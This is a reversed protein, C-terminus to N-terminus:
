TSTDIPDALNTLPVIVDARYYGAGGLDSQDRVRLDTGVLDFEAFGRRNDRIIRKTEGTLGPWRGAENDGLTGGGRKGYLRHRGDVNWGEEIRDTTRLEIAVIADVTEHTWGFGLPTHEEDGGDTIRAVDTTRLSEKIDEKQRVLKPKPVDMPRGSISREWATDLVHEIAQIVTM